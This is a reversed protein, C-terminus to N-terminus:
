SQRLTFLDSRNTQHNAWIRQSATYLCVILHFNNRFYYKYEGDQERWVHGERKETIKVM